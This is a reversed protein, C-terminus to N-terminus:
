PDKLYRVASGVAWFGQQVEEGLLKFSRSRLALGLKPTPM